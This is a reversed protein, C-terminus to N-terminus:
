QGSVTKKGNKEAAALLRAFGVDGPLMRVRDLDATAIWGMPQGERPEPEPEGPRIVARLFHLHFIKEGFKVTNGGLCDLVYVDTGLEERMERRLCDALSEGPEVKGGPFEYCCDLEAGARRGCLLIRGNRRIVAAAVEFELMGYGKKFIVYEMGRLIDVRFLSKLSSKKGTSLSREHLFLNKRCFVQLRFKFIEEDSAIKYFIMRTYCLPLAGAEWASYSPEIGKM